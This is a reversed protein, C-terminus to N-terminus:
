IMFSPTRSSHFLRTTLPQFRGLHVKAADLLDERALIQSRHGSKMRLLAHSDQSLMSLELGLYTHHRSHRDTLGETPRDRDEEASQEGSHGLNNLLM